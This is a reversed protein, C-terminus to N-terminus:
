EGVFGFPLTDIMDEKPIIRRKPAEILFRTKKINHQTVKDGSLLNRRTVFQTQQVDLSPRDAVRRLEKLADLYTGNQDQLQDLKATTDVIMDMMNQVTFITQMSMKLSVGKQKCQTSGDLNEYLYSKRGNAVWQKAEPLELELDGFRFGKYYPLPDLKGHMISDTDSYLIDGGANLVGQIARNLMERGSATVHAALIDNKKVDGRCSPYNKQYSIIAVVDTQGNELVRPILDFSELEVESDHLLIHCKQIDEESETFSACSPFVPRQGFKGYLCNLMLKTVNRDVPANKFDPPHVEQGMESLYQAVELGESTFQENNVLGTARSIIKTKILPVIFDKFIMNSKGEYEWLETIHLVQYGISMAYRIENLTWVGCFSREDPSHPCSDDFRSEMCVRCLGYIVEYSSNLMSDVHYGLFPAYLQEPPLVRCKIIGLRESELKELSPFLFQDCRGIPMDWSIKEGTQPSFSFGLMATPYQSVFDAMSFPQPYFIKYMESVGGKYSERPDLPIFDIINNDQEHRWKKYESGIKVSEWDHQWCCILNSTSRLQRQQERCQEYCKAFTMNKRFNRGHSPYCKPCGHDYCPLFCFLEDRLSGSVFENPFYVLDCVRELHDKMAYVIWEVADKKMLSTYRDVVTITSEPLCKSMFLNMVASPLTVYQLVDFDGQCQSPIQTALSACRERFIRLVQGLLITDSICYEVADKELNWLGPECYFDQLFEELELKEKKGDKTLPFDHQWIEVPPRPVLYGQSEAQRLYDVTMLRHPFFGKRLEQIEYNDPMARLSSQIFCLSDRFTLENEEFFMQMIKTGRQLKLPLFGHMENMYKEVFIADYKGANHAFLIAGRLCAEMFFHFLKKVGDLGWFIFVPQQPYEPLIQYRYDQLIHEPLQVPYIPWLTALYIQHRKSEDLCCEFDYTWYNAGPKKLKDRKMFCVHNPDSRKKKESCMLCRVEDCQLGRHLPFGCFGCKKSILERCVHEHEEECKVSFFCLHCLHCSKRQNFAKTTEDQDDELFRGCSRTFCTSCNGACTHCKKCNVIKMNKCDESACVRSPVYLEYCNPCSRGGHVSLAEPKSCFNVHSLEGRELVGYIECGNTERPLQALPPYAVRYRNCVDYLVVHIGFYEEFFDLVKRSDDHQFLAKLNLALEHRRLYRNRGEVCDRYTRETVGVGFMKWEQEQSMRVDDLQRLHALGIGIFQYLCEQQDKFPDASPHIQVVSKKMHSAGDLIPHKRGGIHRRYAAEVATFKIDMDFQLSHSSNVHAAIIDMVRQATLAALPQHAVHIILPVGDETHGTITLGLRDEDELDMRQAAEVIMDHMMNVFEEPFAGANAINTMVLHQGGDNVHVVVTSLANSVRRIVPGWQFNMEM